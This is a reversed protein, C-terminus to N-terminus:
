NYLINKRRNWVNVIYTSVDRWVYKTLSILKEKSTYTNFDLCVDQAKRYLSHRLDDYVPCKCLFQEEDEIVNMRCLESIREELPTNRFRGTEIKIPLIGMRLQATSARKQRNVILM